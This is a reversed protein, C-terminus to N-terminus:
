RPDLSRWLLLKLEGQGPNEFPGPSPHAPDRKAGFFDTDVVLRSGDPNQYPLNPIRAKGLLETTVQRTNARTWEPGVTLQLYTNGGQEVIKPKPDAEPLLLPNTEKNWPRAGLCYINGAAQLPFDRTDYVWLGYGVVRETNRADWDHADVVPVVERIFVNNYFRDDGGPIANLGAVVTSHPEHFPTDRHPEPRSDILGIMLNHAYAGGQSWDRLSFGSLFLNNDVVFPGHNVETFLDDSTNSYCLNCTVRTGQAMWDLWIGRTADHVENHDIMVDIAAHLKIGAIEMGAFQRKTWINYIKNGSIRSFIGGLSGVIGAQECNYIENGRVIHSGITERSWGERLARAIVEKFHTAGDRSPDQSWVNQGSQRDKGLSIGVCKSDSIVNSEIIWGKSWHTGILGMQEATPPAWQTAAQCMHFGRVTIYNCGTEEPYFCSDRVNIEVMQENPNKDHFNAYIYTYDDDSECFWVWTSGEPDQAGAVPKPDLVRAFTDSEWLSKGNLYVEGTHHVRGLPYFWDGAIREQYPNYRGFSGNPIVARWVNGLLRSWGKVTESGKIVVEEGPVAQYTIRKADSEGGRPPTVRERYTGGHVLITDGAYAVKAAASITRFPKAVSGDNADDGKISVHFETAFAALNMLLLGLILIQRRM